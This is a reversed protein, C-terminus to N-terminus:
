YIFAFTLIYSTLNTEMFIKLIDVKWLKLLIYNFISIILTTCRCLHLPWSHWKNQSLPFLIFSWKIQNHIIIKKVQFDTCEKAKRISRYHYWKIILSKYITIFLDRSIGLLLLYVLLLLKLSKTKYDSNDPPVISCNRLNWCKRKFDTEQIQFIIAEQRHCM